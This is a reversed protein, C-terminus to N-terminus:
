VAVGSIEQDPTTVPDYTARFVSDKCPYLENEVGKIIWDGVTAGYVGELTDLDSSCV